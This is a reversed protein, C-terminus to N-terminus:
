SFLNNRVYKASKLFYDNQQDKFAVVYLYDAPLSYEYYSCNGKVSLDFDYASQKILLAWSTLTGNSGGYTGPSTKCANAVEQAVDELNTNMPNNWADVIWTKQRKDPNIGRGTWVVDDEDLYLPLDYLPAWRYVIVSARLLDVHKSKAYM